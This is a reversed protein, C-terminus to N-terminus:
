QKYQYTYVEGDKMLSKALFNQFPSPLNNGLVSIITHDEKFHEFKGFYSCKAIVFKGDEFKVRFVHNTSVMASIDIIYRVKRSPDYQHWADKIINTFDLPSFM